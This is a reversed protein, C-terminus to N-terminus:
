HKWPAQVHIPLQFIRMHGLGSTAIAIVATTGRYGSAWHTRRLEGGMSGKDSITARFTSRYHIDWSLAQGGIELAGRCFGEGIENNGIRFHFPDQRRACHALGDLPFGQIFSQPKGDVPFWTAWIQVPMGRPDGACGRRGPNMLLYRFWWAGSGDALGM